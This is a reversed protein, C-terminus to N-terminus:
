GRERGRGLRQRRLEPAPGSLEQELRDLHALAAWAREPGVTDMAAREPGVTYYTRGGSPRTGPPPPGLVLLSAAGSRWAQYPTRAYAYRLDLDAPLGPGLNEGGDLELGGARATMLAGPRLGARRAAPGAGGVVLREGARAPPWGPVPVSEGLEGQRILLRRARANLDDVDARSSAVMVAEPGERRWDAVLRDRVAGSTAAMVLGPAVRGTGIEPQTPELHRAPLSRSLVRAGVAAEASRWGGARDVDRLPGPDGVLVLKAGTRETSEALRALVPAPTSEAGLLVFVTDPTPRRLRALGEDLRATDTIEFGANGARARGEAGPAAVVVRHGAARWAQHAAGLVAELRPGSGGVLEVGAGSGTLSAVLGAADEELGRIFPSSPALGAASGIRRLAVDALREEARAAAATRWRAAETPIPVTVGPRRMVDRRRLPAAGTMREVEPSALIRDAEAEIWGAPAGARSAESLAEILEARSFSSLRDLGLEGAEVPRTPMPVPAGGGPRDGPAPGPGPPMLGSERARRAWEPAMAEASRERSREPRDVLAALRASAPGAGHHRAMGEEVQARRQSFLSRLEPPVSSLQGVGYRAEEWELGLRASIQHRLGAQYLYGATRAQAVLVLGSLATWQDTGEPVALNMVLLHSHLHPDGARSTRHSFVAGVMGKSSLGPKTRCAREELYGITADLATERAAMVAEATAPSGLAWAVSVSKPDSVTLDYARIPSPRRLAGGSIPHALELLSTLRGDVPGTLGLAAAGAGVWRGPTEWGAAAPELYYRETGPGLKTVRIM